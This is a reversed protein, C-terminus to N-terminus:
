LLLLFFFIVKIYNSYIINSQSLKAAKFDAVDGVTVYGARALKIKLKSPLPCWNLPKSYQELAGLNPVEKAAMWGHLKKRKCHTETRIFHRLATSLVLGGSSERSRWRDLLLIHM